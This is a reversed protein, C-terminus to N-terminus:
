CNLLLTSTSANVQIVGYTLLESLVPQLVEQTHAIAKGLPKGQQLARLSIGEPYENARRKLWDVMRQANPSLPISDTFTPAGPLHLCAELYAADETNAETPIRSGVMPFQRQLNPLHLWDPIPLITEAQGPRNMRVQPSRCMEGWGTEGYQRTLQLASSDILERVGKIGAFGASVTKAHNILIPAFGHKDSESLATRVLAQGLEEWDGAYQTLEDVILSRRKEGMSFNEVLNIYFAEIAGFNRGAGVVLGEFLTQGDPHPTVALTPWDLLYSRLYAIASALSSKGTQQPGSVVVLKAMLPFRLDPCDRMLRQWLQWQQGTWSASIPPPTISGPSDTSGNNSLPEVPGVSGAPAISDEGLVVQRLKELGKEEAKDYEEDTTTTDLKDNLRQRLDILRALATPRETEPFQHLYRKLADEGFQQYLQAIAEFRPHGELTEVLFDWDYGSFSPLWRLKSNTRQAEWFVQWLLGAGGLGLGMLGLPTSATGALITWGLAGSSLLRVIDGGQAERKIGTIHQEFELLEKM